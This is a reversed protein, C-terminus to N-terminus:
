GKIGIVCWYPQRDSFTINTLGARTCMSYIQDKSYRHELPTGFRDRSDTRLTYLSSHRYYSLPVHTYDLGLYELIRSLRSLPYYITVAILDTIAQKIVPPM